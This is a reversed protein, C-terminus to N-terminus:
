ILNVILSGGGFTNPPCALISTTDLYRYRALFEEQQFSLQLTVSFSNRPTQGGLVAPNSFTSLPPLSITSSTSNELRSGEITGVSSDFVQQAKVQSLGDSSLQAVSIETGGYAVYMTNDNDVPLSCDYYCTDIVGSQKWPGTLTPATLVYTTSFQVCEIWYWMGSSARYRM